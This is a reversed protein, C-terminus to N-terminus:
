RRDGSCVVVGGGCAALEWSRELVASVGGDGGDDGPFAFFRMQNLRRNRMSCLVFFDATKALFDLM